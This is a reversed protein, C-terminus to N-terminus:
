AIYRSVPPASTDLDLGAGTAVGFAPGDVVRVAAGARVHGGDHAVTADEDWLAVLADLGAVAQNDEIGALADGLEV